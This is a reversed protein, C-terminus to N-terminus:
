PALQALVLENGWPDRVHAYWTGADDRHPGLAPVVDLTVLQELVAELDDVHLVLLPYGGSQRGVLARQADTRAPVIWLGPERAGATGVHLARFGGDLREDFLVDFGFADAYFRAAAEQDDVLLTSRAIRIM